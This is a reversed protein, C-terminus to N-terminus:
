FSKRKKKMDDDKKFNNLNEIMTDKRKSKNYNELNEEVMGNEFTINNENNEKNEYNVHINKKLNEKIMGNEKNPINELNEKITENEKTLNNESNEKIMVNGKNNDNLINKNRLNYNNDNNKNKILNNINSLKIDNKNNIGNTNIQSISNSNVIIGFDGAEPYKKRLYCWMIVAITELFVGSTNAVIINIDHYSFGYVTWCGGNVLMLMASLIPILHYNNTKLVRNCKELTGAYMLINFIM